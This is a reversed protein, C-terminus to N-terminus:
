FLNISMNKEVNYWKFATRSKGKFLRFFLCKSMKNWLMFITLEASDKNAAFSERIFYKTALFMYNLVVNLTFYLATIYIYFFFSNDALSHPVSIVSVASSLAYIRSIFLYIFLYFTAKWLDHSISKSCSRLCGFCHM